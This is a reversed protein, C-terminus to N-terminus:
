FFYQYSHHSVWHLLYFVLTHNKQVTQIVFQVPLYFLVVTRFYFLHTLLERDVVQDTLLFHHTTQRDAHHYGSLCFTGGFSYHLPVRDLEDGIVRDVQNDSQFQAAEGPTTVEVPLQNAQMGVALDLTDVLYVIEVVGVTEDMLGVSIM